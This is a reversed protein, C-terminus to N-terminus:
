FNAKCATITAGKPSCERCKAREELRAISLSARRQALELIMMAANTEIVRESRQLKHPSQVEPRAFANNRRQHDNGPQQRNVKGNSLAERERRVAGIEGEKALRADIFTM